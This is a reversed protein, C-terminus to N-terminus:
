TLGVRFTWSGKVVLEGVDELIAATEPHQTVAKFAEVTPHHRQV